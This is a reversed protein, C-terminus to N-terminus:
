VSQITINKYDIPFGTLLTVEKVRAKMQLLVTRDYYLGELSFNSCIVCPQNKRKWMGEYRNPLQVNPTGELFTNIFAQDKFKNPGHFEDFCVLDYADDDYGSCYQDSFPMWYVSLYETLMRVISTKGSNPPGHIYLQLQKHARKEFLNANFWDIIEQTQVHTGHYTLGKLVGLNDRTKGLSLYGKYERIKKLNQMVYGPHSENINDLTAGEMLAKAIDDAKGPAKRKKKNNQGKEVPGREHYEEINKAVEIPLAGFTLTSKDCKRIYDLAGPISDVALINAHYTKDTITSYSILDFFTHSKVNVAKQFLLFLHLHTNGDQHFEQAVEAYLLPVVTSFPRQYRMLHSIVAEKSTPCQSFTLLFKKRALRFGSLPPMPQPEDTRKLQNIIVSKNM